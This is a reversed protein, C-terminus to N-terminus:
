GVSDTNVRNPRQSDVLLHADTYGKAVLPANPLLNRPTLAAHVVAAMQDDPTTAPTTEVHVILHPTNADCTDTVHVTDGIWELHRRTSDRADTEDPSTLQDAAAPM